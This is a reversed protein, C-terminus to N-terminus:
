SAPRRLIGTETAVADMRRDHPGLPVTELLQISHAVGMLYPREPEAISFARDYFGGGRGLRGGQKDFAVGPVLVLDNQVLLVASIEGSPELIGFRGAELQQWHEIEAYELRNEDRCRPFLCRKGAEQALDFLPRTSVEGGTAAYFGIREARAFEACGGVWVSLQRAAQAAQESDIKGRASLMSRRLQAKDSDLNM